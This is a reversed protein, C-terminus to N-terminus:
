KRGQKEDAGRGRGEGKEGGGGGGGRGGRCEGGNQEPKRYLLSYQVQNSSLVTGRGKLVKAANRVREANFNSV